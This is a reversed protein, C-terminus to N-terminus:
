QPGMLVLCTLLIPSFIPRRKVAVDSAPRRLLQLGVHQIDPLIAQVGNVLDSFHASSQVEVNITLSRRAQLMFGPVALATWFPFLSM